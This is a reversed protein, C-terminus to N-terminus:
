ISTYTLSLGAHDILEPFLFARTQQRREGSPRVLRIPFVLPTDTEVALSLLRALRNHEDDGDNRDRITFPDTDPLTLEFAAARQNVDTIIQRARESSHATVLLRDGRYATPLPAVGNALRVASAPDLARADFRVFPDQPAAPGPPAPERAQSSTNPDTM